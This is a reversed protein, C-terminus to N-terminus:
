VWVKHYHVYNETGNVMMMMKTIIKELTECDTWATADLEDRADDLVLQDLLQFVWNQHSGVIMNQLDALPMNQSVVM